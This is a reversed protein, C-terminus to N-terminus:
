TAGRDYGNTAIITPRPQGSDDVRYFYGPLTTGEYPIEVSEVPPEFLAATREFAEVERDFAEILRRDVPAGFLFPYTGV